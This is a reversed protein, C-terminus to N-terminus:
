DSILKNRQFEILCVVDIDSKQMGHKEIKEVFSSVVSDDFGNVDDVIIANAYHDKVRQLMEGDAGIWPTLDKTGSQLWPIIYAYEANNMRMTYTAQM